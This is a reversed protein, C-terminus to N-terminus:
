DKGYSLCKQSDLYSQKRRKKVDSFWELFDNFAATNDSLCFLKFNLNRCKRQEWQKMRLDFFYPIWSIDLSNETKVTVTGSARGMPFCKKVDIIKNNEQNNFSVGFETM